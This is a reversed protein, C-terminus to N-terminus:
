FSEAEQGEEKELGGKGQKEEKEVEEEEKVFYERKDLKEWRGDQEKEMKMGRKKWIGAGEKWTGAGM